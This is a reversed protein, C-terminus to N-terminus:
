CLLENVVLQHYRVKDMALLASTDLLWGMRSEIGSKELTIV